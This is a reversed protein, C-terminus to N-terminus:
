GIHKKITAQLEKNEFPKVIYDDAGVEKGTLRDQDQGRATLLIVPTKQLEEDFKLLRCVQYGDMKPMMIDLLILDPKSERAKELGEYGDYAAFAEYGWAELRVRIIEFFDKEDDIILVKKPM